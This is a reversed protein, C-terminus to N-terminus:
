VKTRALFLTSTYDRRVRGGAADIVAALEHYLRERLDRDLNIHDSYTSLLALHEATSYEASWPYRRVEVPSFLGCADIEGRRRQIREEIRRRPDAHMARKEWTAPAIRRYVESLARYLSDDGLVHHNWFLAVAGAPALARAVKPLGVAPDIWHFASGSIALDFSGQPADWDEFACNVINVNGYSALRERAVSALDAGLEIGTIRFGRQAFPETATGPGCGVELIRGGEPLSAFLLVGEVLAAPYGPRHALYHRAIRDFSGRRLLDIPM